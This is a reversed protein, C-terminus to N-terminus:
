GTFHQKKCRVRKKVYVNESLSVFLYFMDYLLMINTNCTGLHARTWICKPITFDVTIVNDLQKFFIGSKFKTRVTKGHLFFLTVYM